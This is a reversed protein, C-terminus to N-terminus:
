MRNINRGPETQAVFSLRRVRSRIEHAYRAAILGRPARAHKILTEAATPIQKKAQRAGRQAAYAM